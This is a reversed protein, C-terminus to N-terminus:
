AAMEAWENILSQMQQEVQAYETGLEAVQEPTASGIQQTLESMRSELEAILAELEAARAQRGRRMVRGRVAEAIRWLLGLAVAGVAVAGILGILFYLREHPACPSAPTLRLRM